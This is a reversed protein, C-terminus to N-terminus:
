QANTKREPSARPSPRPSARPSPVPSPIPTKPTKLCKIIKNDDRGQFLMEGEFEVLGHKRARLLLGVVKDSIAVYISFIHHFTIVWGDSVEKGYDRIIECCESVEKLVHEHAKIGRAETLSGPPPRNFKGTAPQLSM